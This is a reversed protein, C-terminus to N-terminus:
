AAQRLKTVLAALEGRLATGQRGVEASASHLTGLSQVTDEVGDRLRDVGASVENTGRAAEAVNRAIEQTAAGQEEVAAAISTAIESSRGVTSGILRIAEVAQGTAAQMEAIQRGIEETARATQAALTKVESAVVAFGKGAEGARAAEITANLALLNTQGAIDGILKVVEGIRGAGEALAQVTRDTAGAEEAARHAVTAAEAVQRSIEQISAAMEEAAAAVTQVNASTQQAGGVAAEADRGTRRATGSLRDTAQDLGTVTEALASAIGGLSREVEQALAQQAAVRDQAARQRAAEAEAELAEIRRAGDRLVVVADAVAGVEDGSGAGPVDLDLAGNAIRTTAGSLAALPRAVRRNVLWSATAAVALALMLLLSSILLAREADGILTAARAESARSAGALVGLLTGLQPTTTEVFAGAEMSYRGAAGERVMRDALSRFGEFYSRRAEEIAARLAPHTAPDALPALNGVQDWLLDVRGRIAANAAVRDAAVPQGATIAAAINSRELGATDRLRWGLEKVVALRALTPDETAVAHSAAFWVRLAADVSATITPVYDRRLAEDRSDRPLRLADDARRRADDARELAARLDRLLAEKGTFEQASLGALGPAFDAAVAARRRNIEALAEPGAPGPAQLANNTALREMLVEFLGSAFRNAARDAVAAAQASRLERVDEAANWGLAGLSLLTLGAVAGSLALRLSIWGRAKPPTAAPSPTRALPNM